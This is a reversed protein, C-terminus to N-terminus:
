DINISQNDYLTVYAKKWDSRKGLVKGFRKKKGLLNITNVARVNVSYTSHIAKKIDKKTAYSKVKFVYKPLGGDVLAAKETNLMNIIIDSYKNVNESM